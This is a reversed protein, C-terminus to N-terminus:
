TMRSQVSTGERRRFSETEVINNVEGEREVRGTGRLHLTSNVRSVQHPKGQQTPEGIVLM